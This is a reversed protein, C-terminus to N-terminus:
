RTPVPTGPQIRDQANRPWMLDTAPGRLAPPVNCTYTLNKVHDNFRQVAADYATQDAVTITRLNIILAENQATIARQTKLEAMLGKNIDEARVLATNLRQNEAEKKATQGQEFKWLGFLVAAAIVAAGMLYLQWNRFVGGAFSAIGTIVGM